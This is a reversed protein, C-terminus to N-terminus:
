FKISNYFEFFPKYCKGSTDSNFCITVMPISLGIQIGNNYRGFTVLIGFQKIIQISIWAPNGM